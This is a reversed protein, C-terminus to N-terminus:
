LSRVDLRVVAGSVSRLVEQTLDAADADQLRRRCAMRYIIPTYIEVFQEWAERDHPDKIRVLLSPRTADPQNMFFADGTLLYFIPVHM